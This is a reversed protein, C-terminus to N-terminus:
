GPLKLTSELGLQLAVEGESDTDPIFMHGYELALFIGHLMHFTIGGGARHAIDCFMDESLADYRIATSVLDNSNWAYGAFWGALYKRLM